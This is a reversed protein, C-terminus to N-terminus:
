FVVKFERGHKCTVWDIDALKTEEPSEVHNSKKRLKCSRQNSQFVKAKRCRRLSWFLLFIYDLLNGLAKGITLMYVHM